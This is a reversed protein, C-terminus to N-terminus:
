LLKFVELISILVGRFDSILKWNIDCFILTSDVVNELRMCFKPLFRYLIGSLGSILVPIENFDEPKM